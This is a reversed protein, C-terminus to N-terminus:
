YMRAIYIGRETNLIMCISEGQLRSEEHPHPPTPPGKVGCGIIMMVVTMIIIRIFSYIKM